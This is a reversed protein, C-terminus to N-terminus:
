PNDLEQDDHEAGKKATKKSEEYIFLFFVVMFIAGIVLCCDAFNFVPFDILKFYLYDVVYGYLVRDILNGIGGALVLVLSVNLLPQLRFRGNLIVLLLFLMVVVTIVIFLWRQGDLMGFSAGTNTVYALEFVGDLIVFPPEGKLFVVALYKFWQDLVILLAAPVLMWLRYKWAGQFKFEELFKKM